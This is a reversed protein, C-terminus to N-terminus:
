LLKCPEAARSDCCYTKLQCPCFGRMEMERRFMLQVANKKVEVKKGVDGSQGDKNTHTLVWRQFGLLSEQGSECQSSCHGGRGTGVLSVFLNCIMWGEAAWIMVWVLENFWMVGTRMWSWQSGTWSEMWYLFSEEGVYQLRRWPYVEVSGGEVEEVKATSNVMGVDHGPVM